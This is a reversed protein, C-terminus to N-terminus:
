LTGFAGKVVNAIERAAAIQALEDLSRLEVTGLRARQDRRSSRVYSPDYHLQVVERVLSSFDGADAVLRWSELRKRGPYTELRTLAAELAPRDAIIEPYSQMLYSVRAELPVALEIRQARQMASWLAPPISRQGVKSSEAELLVPRSFDM